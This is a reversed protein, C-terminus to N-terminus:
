QLFEPLQPDVVFPAFVAGNAPRLANFADKLYLPIVVENVLLNGLCSVRVWPGSNSATGNSNLVKTSRSSAAAWGGVFRM